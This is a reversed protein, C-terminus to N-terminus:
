NLHDLITYRIPPIPTIVALQRQRCSRWIAAPLMVALDGSAVHGGIAAPLRTQWVLPHGRSSGCHHKTELVFDNAARFCSRAAAHANTIDGNLERCWRKFNSYLKCFLRACATLPSNACMGDAAIRRVHQWRIVIVILMKLM